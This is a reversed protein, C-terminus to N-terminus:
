AMSPGHDATKDTTHAGKEHLTETKNCISLVRQRIDQPLEKLLDSVALKHKHKLEDLEKLQEDLVHELKEVIVTIDGSDTQHPGNGTVYVRKETEGFQSDDRDSDYEVHRLPSADYPNNANPSHSNEESWSDGSAVSDAPMLNSPGPRLPSNGASAKPSDSWYKRGSPMRELVLPSSHISDNTMPSADDYAEYRGSELATETIFSSNNSLERPAWDSIHSRIESDIMAAIVSVDHDTLNLEEVM